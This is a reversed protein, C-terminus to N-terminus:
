KEIVVLFKQRRSEFEQQDLSEHGSVVVAVTRVSSDSKKYHERIVNKVQNPLYDNARYRVGVTGNQVNTGNLTAIFSVAFYRM